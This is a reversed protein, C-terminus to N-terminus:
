SNSLLDFIKFGTERPSGTPPSRERPQNSFQWGQHQDDRYYGDSSTSANEGLSKGKARQTAAFRVTRM